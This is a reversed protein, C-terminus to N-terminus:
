DDWSIIKLYPLRAQYLTAIQNATLATPLIAVEDILGDWPNKTANDPSGGICAYEQDNTDIVGSQAKRGVEVGDQYLVMENGNYVAAIFVWTNLLIEGVTGRIEETRGGAKLRFWLRHREHDKLTALMWYTDAKADGTAKSIIRCDDIDWDDIKFWALFTVEDTPIDMNGLGIFDDYGDFSACTNNAANLAGPQGPVVGNTYVGHFAGMEDFATPESSEGLRWYAIPNCAVVLMSYTNVAMAAMSVSQSIAGTSGSSIITYVNGTGSGPAAYFRYSDSSGDVYFPGLPAASNSALLTATDHKLVYMAHQSGSEALYRARTALALNATSSARVSAALAYGIGLTTAAAVVVLVLVLAIGRYNDTRTMMTRILM